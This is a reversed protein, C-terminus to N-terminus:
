RMMVPLALMRMRMVMMAMRMQKLRQLHLHLLSSVVLCAQQSAIRGVHTNVQCLEDTLTDLHADMHQLQAMIAKLTIGGDSSSPTSTSPVAFTAPNTLETWPRRPRLQAESWQISAVDIAGMVTYYPSNPIPIFYHRLIRTTASPFILKDRTM